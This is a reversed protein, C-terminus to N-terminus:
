QSKVLRIIQSQENITVMLFYVGDNNPSIDLSNHGSFIYSRKIEKGLIDHILIKINQDSEIVFVGKSPNPYIKLFLDQDIESIGTCEKVQM